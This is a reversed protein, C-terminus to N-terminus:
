SGCEKVEDGERGKCIGSRGVSGGVWGVHGGHEQVCCEIRKTTPVAPVVKM